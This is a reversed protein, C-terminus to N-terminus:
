LDTTSLSPNSFTLSPSNNVRKKGRQALAEGLPEVYPNDAGGEEEDEEQIMSGPLCCAHGDLIIIIINCYYCYYYSYHVFFKVMMPMTDKDSMVM